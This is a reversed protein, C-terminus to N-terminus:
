ADVYGMAGLGLSIPTAITGGLRFDNKGLAVDGELAFSRGRFSYTFGTEIGWEKVEYINKAKPFLGASVGTFSSEQKGLTIGGFGPVTLGADQEGDYIKVVTRMSNLEDRNQPVSESVAREAARTGQIDRERLQRELFTLDVRDGTVSDNCGTFTFVISLLIATISFKPAKKM